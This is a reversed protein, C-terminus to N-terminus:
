SKPFERTRDHTGAGGSALIKKITFPTGICFGKMIMRRDDQYSQFVTSFSTFDCALWGDM